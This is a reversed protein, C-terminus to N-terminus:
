VPPRRTTASSPSADGMDREYADLRYHVRMGVREYLAAARPNDSAVGLMVQALDAAKCRVFVARLLWSGLGRGSALPDVALLDVYGRGEDAWRRCLAFGIPRGDEEAVVSLGPDLTSAQLHEARFAGIGEGRYAAVSAFARENLAFLEAADGEPHLGRGTVGSPPEPAEGATGDLDVLMRWYSRERAYGFSRLLEAARTNREPIDQRHRDHGRETARQETWELLATGIGRGEAEPHVMAVVEGPRMAAYAILQGDEEAVLADLELTFGPAGWEDHLDELLYDPEGLDAVDRAVVVALIAEADDRTPPRLHM